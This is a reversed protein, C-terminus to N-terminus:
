PAAAPRLAHREAAATLAIDTEALPLCEDVLQTIPLHKRQDCVFGLAMLLHRPEYNHVGRATRTGGLLAARTGETPHGTSRL